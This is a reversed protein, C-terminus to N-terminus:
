PRNSRRIPAESTTDFAAKMDTRSAPRVPTLEDHLESLERHLAVVEIRSNLLGSRLRSLDARTSILVEGAAQLARM